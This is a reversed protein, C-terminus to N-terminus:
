IIINNIIVKNPIYKIINNILEDYGFGHREGHRVDRPSRQTSRPCLALLRHRFHVGRQDGRSMPRVVARRGRLPIQCEEKSRVRRRCTGDSPRCHRKSTTALLLRYGSTCQMGSSVHQGQTGDSTQELNCHDAINRYVYM